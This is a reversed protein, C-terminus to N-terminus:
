RQAFIPNRPEPKLRPHDSVSCRRSTRSLVGPRKCLRVLRSPRYRRGPGTEYDAAAKLDYTQSLFGRLDDDFGADDKTLRHLQAHVGKHTKVSRGTRESILAQAAHFGALYTSRGAADHLGVGLMIEADGLLKRAKDLFYGTEPTM